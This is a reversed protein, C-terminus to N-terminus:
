EQTPLFGISFIKFAEKAMIHHIDEKGFYTHLELLLFPPLWYTVEKNKACKIILFPVLCGDDVQWSGLM